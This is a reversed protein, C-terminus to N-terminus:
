PPLVPFNGKFVSRSHAYIRWSFYPYRISALILGRGMGGRGRGERGERGRGKGVRGM